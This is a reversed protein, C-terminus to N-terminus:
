MSEEGPVGSTLKFTCYNWRILQCTRVAEHTFAILFLFCFTWGRHTPKWVAFLHSIFWQGLGIGALHAYMSRLWCMVTHISSLWRRLIAANGYMYLFFKLTNFIMLNCNEPRTCAQSNCPLCTQYPLIYYKTLWNDDLGRQFSIFKPIWLFGRFFCPQWLFQWQWGLSSCSAPPQPMGRHLYLCPNQFIKSGQCFLFPWLETLCKDEQPHGWQLKPVCLHKPFPSEQQERLWCIDGAQGHHLSESSAGWAPILFAWCSLDWIPPLM